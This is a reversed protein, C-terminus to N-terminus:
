SKAKSRAIVTMVIADMSPVPFPESHSSFLKTLQRGESFAKLANATKSYEEFHRFATKLHNPASLWSKLCLITKDRKDTLGDRHGNLLLKAAESLESESMSHAARVFAGRVPGAFGRVRSRFLQQAFLLENESDTFASEFESDLLQMGFFRMGTGIIACRLTAKESKGFVWDPHKRAIWDAADRTKNRDIAHDLSSPWNRVVIMWRGEVGVQLDSKLRHLGDLVNESEDLVLPM